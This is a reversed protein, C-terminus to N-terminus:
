DTDILLYCFLQLDDVVPLILPIHFLYFPIPNYWFQLHLWWPVFTYVIATSIDHLYSFTITSLLFLLIFPFIVYWSICFRAHVSFLCAPPIHHYICCTVRTSHVVFWRTFHLIGRITISYVFTYIHIDYDYHTPLLWWCHVEFATTTVHYCCFLLWWHLTYWRLVPISEDFASFLLPFLVFTYWWCIYWWWFILFIVLLLLHLWYHWCWCCIHLVYCMLFTM